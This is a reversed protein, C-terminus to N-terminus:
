SPRELEFVIKNRVGPVQVPQGDIVRPKYKFRLAAEIASREFIEDTSELVVVDRVAGTETVTFKVLVFGEMRRALARAPYVPEVKVIPLYEGDAVGFGSGGVSAGWSLDPTSMSVSVSSAFNGGTDPSPMEPPQQPEPPKEAKREQTQVEQTREVRVFDVLAVSRTDTIAGQGADIMLQMVLLLSFTVATGLLVAIAYRVIM